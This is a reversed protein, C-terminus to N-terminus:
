SPSGQDVIQRAPFPQQGPDQKPLRAKVVVADGPAVDTLDTTGDGNADPGSVKAASFDFGVDQGVFGNKKVRSNGGTVHVTGDGNYTGKFVWSVVPNGHNGHQGAKGHEGSHGHGNGPKALAAPAAALVAVAALAFLQRRLAMKMGEREIRFEEAAMLRGKLAVELDPAGCRPREFL